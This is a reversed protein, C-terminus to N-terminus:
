VRDLKHFIRKECYLYVSASALAAVSSIFKGSLGQLLTEMGIFRKTQADIRVDMLAVLIALFTFFLGVGTVIGPVSAHMQKNFRLDILTHEDFSTDSSESSWFEDDGDPGIRRIIRSKFSSWVSQLAPVTFVQSFTDYAAGSLGRGPGITNNKRLEEVSVGVSSLRAIEARSRVYLRFLAFLPVVLLFFSAIWSFWPAELSLFSWEAKLLQMIGM